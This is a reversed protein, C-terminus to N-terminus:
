NLTVPFRGTQDSYLKGKVNTTTMYVPNTHDNLPAQPVPEMSDPEPATDPLVRTSRIGARRQDMHGMETEDVVKIFRHVRKTTLGPWGKFYGADIARCWTSTTSFGM